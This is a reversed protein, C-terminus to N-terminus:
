RRMRGCAPCHSAPPTRGAAGRGGACVLAGAASRPSRSRMACRRWLEGATVAVAAAAAFGAIAPLPPTGGRRGREQGGGAILPAIAPSSPRWCCRGPARRAAWSTRRSRWAMTRGLAAFDVGDARGGAGCRRAAAGRPAPVAAAAEAIPQVTGTENNALMLCVLAPRSTRWCRRWRPWIPSATGTSRCCARRRPAGCAGRRARHRRRDLRRGQRACPGGACRGRHRGLHVGLNAPWRASDPPWRRAPTKWSGGRRGARAM